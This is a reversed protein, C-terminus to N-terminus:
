GPAATTRAAEARETVATVLARSTAGLNSAGSSAADYGDGAHSPRGHFYEPRTFSQGLLASGLVTGDDRDILSGNAQEPFVAQGLGTMALPYGIGLVATFGLYLAGYRLTKILM